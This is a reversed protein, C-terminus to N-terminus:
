WMVWLKMELYIHLLFSFKWVFIHIHIDMAANNKVALLYFYSLHGDVSLHTFHAWDMCYLIIWCYFTINICVSSQVSVSLFVLPTGQKTTLIRPKCQQPRPELGPRPVWTICGLSFFFPHIKWVYALHFFRTVFSCM